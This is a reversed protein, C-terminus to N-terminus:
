WSERLRYQLMLSSITGIVDASSMALGVYKGFMAGGGNMDTDQMRLVYSGGLWDIIDLANNQWTVAVSANNVWSAFSSVPIAYSQSDSYPPRDNLISMTFQVTGSSASTNIEFGFSCTEKTTQLADMDWFALSFKWPQLSDSRDFLRYIHTGDTGYLRHGTGDYASAIALLDSGQSALFWKKNFFIALLPRPGDVPDRYTFFFAACQQNEINVLGSWIPKDFDILPVVGDLADSIKQPTAGYLSYVGSRNMMMLSRYFSIVAGYFIDSGINDSLNPDSFVTAGSVVQVDGIANISDTGTWYLFDNAPLLSIVSSLLTEDTVIFTGAAQGTQFNEYGNGGSPPASFTFTRNSTLWSRGAYTAVNQGTPNFLTSTAAITSAPNFTMTAPSTYGMGPEDIVVQTVVGADVICHGTAQIGGTENPASFTVTVSTLGVGGNSLTVANVCGIHVLNTGDWSRYGLSDFILIRSNQWQSISCRTGNLEGASCITTKTYPSSLLVQYASGDDCAVFMYPNGGLNFSRLYYVAIGGTITALALSRDACVKLNGHGIPILNEIWSFEGRDIAQRVAQTNLGAFARFVETNKADGSAQANGGRTAMTLM